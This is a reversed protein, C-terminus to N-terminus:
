PWRDLSPESPRFIPRVSMPATASVSYVLLLKGRFDADTRARGTHDILTFSGGIPEKGWMVIDMLEAASCEEKVEPWLMFGAAGLLIGGAFASGLLFRSMKERIRV